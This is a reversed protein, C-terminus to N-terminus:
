NLEFKNFMVAIERQASKESDSGHVLNKRNDTGYLNRLSGKEAEKSDTRGIIKRSRAIADKGEWVSAVLPGSLMFKMFRKYFPKERHEAYFLELRKIDPPIMKMAILRLGEEEFRNIVKGIVKKQVGDPKILICSRQKM